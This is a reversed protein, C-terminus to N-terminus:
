DDPPPKPPPIDDDGPLRSIAYRRLILPELMETWLRRLRRKTEDKTLHALSRLLLDSDIWAVVMIATDIVGAGLPVVDVRLPQSSRPDLDAETVQLLEAARQRLAPDRLTAQLADNLTANVEELSAAGQKLVAVQTKDRDAPNVM